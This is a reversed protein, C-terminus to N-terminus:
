SSCRSCATCRPSTRCWGPWCGPSGSRRARSTPASGARRGLHGVLGRHLDPLDVSLVSGLRERRESPRRCRSRCRRRRSRRRPGPSGPRCPRPRPRPVGPRDRRQDPRRGGAPHARGQAERSLVPHCSIFMLALVDDDIRDPDCLVDDTRDPRRAREGSTAGGEGLDPRPRRVERRPRLAPPVRRDRPAPRRHAALRGPQPARRRAAVVDEQISRRRLGIRKAAFARVAFNRLVNRCHRKHNQGGINLRCFRCSGEPFRRKVSGAEVLGAKSGASANANSIPAVRQAPGAPACAPTESPWFSANSRPLPLQRLQWSMLPPSKGPVM